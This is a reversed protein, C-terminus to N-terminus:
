KAEQEKPYAVWRYVQWLTHECDKNKNRAVELADQYNFFMQDWIAKVLKDVTSVTFFVTPVTGIKRRSPDHKICFHTVVKSIVDYHCGCQEFIIREEENM